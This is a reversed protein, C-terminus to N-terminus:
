DKALSYIDRKLVGIYPLQRYNQNWDLGYGVVFYDPISYGVYNAEVKGERRTPKDLMTVVKISAPARQRLNRLVYSLTLGTDIVDEVVIVHRGEISEDLDKTLRAEGSSQTGSYSSVGLLDITLPIQIQRMLDALFPISGKVITVLHPYRGQYDRTIEQGIAAVREAIQDETYLVREIDHDIVGM